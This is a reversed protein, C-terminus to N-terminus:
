MKARCKGQATVGEKMRVISSISLSPPPSPIQKQQSSCPLLATFRSLTHTHTHAGFLKIYTHTHTHPTLTHPIHTHTHIYQHTRTWPYAQPLPFEVNGAWSGGHDQGVKKGGSMAGEKIAARCVSAMQEVPAGDGHFHQSAKRIQRLSVLPSISTLSHPYPTPCDYPCQFQTM